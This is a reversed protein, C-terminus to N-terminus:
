LQSRILNYYAGKMDLLDQHKGCEVIIGNDVVAIVDANIVTSLRHAILIATRGQQAKDLADQVIKESETDLASTAEDLLLIKPKRILARAIAIRQKQGGSLQSGKKGCRTELREPLDMVFDYANAEKLAKEIDEDTYKEVSIKNSKLGEEPQDDLGYIINNRISTDFLVPEQQVLGVNARLWRLNIQSVEIDDVLVGGDSANYFRELLAICTSKGCGSQGVLALTKGPPVVATLGKLVLVDPRTPYAFGVSKFAVKGTITPKKGSEDEPDIIAETELLKVVRRAAIVAQGYDPAMGASQGATFAAFILAFLVRFVDSTRDLSIFGEEILFAAFTFLGAYMLFMVGLSAGYLFGYIHIKKAKGAFTTEMNTRYVEAFHLERGLGAVTRINITAETAVKSADEIAKQEKGGFNGTMIKMMLAMTIILFPLFAFTMLCLRWEYYFAIALGCGMAGLNVLTQSIKRGTAGQVKGADSALRATLAGTSNMPEDFYGMDLRLLKAFSQKRLRTTMKEGSIGFLWHTFFYGVLQSLGLVVFMCSWFVVEKKFHDLNCGENAAKTADADFTFTFTGFAERITGSLATIERNYSCSYKSYNELVSAFVIAWIPQVAGVAVAFFSGILMCQWEPANMKIIQGWSVEPLGEREAIEEDTEEEGKRKGAKALVKNDVTEEKLTLHVEEKDVEATTTEDSTGDDVWTQMNSLTKYVGDEILLLSENNGQEVVEGNKLGIILDAKKITSLRHAIVLTTRGVSAKELALQVIKESETDLASTAEDLLLIKPNRVLARAIAIRQKQGGSLTAGGEGVNTNWVNPLQNIFDYANAQKCATIIEEKTVDLRGLRINEMITGEFLIPEQSVVGVNQRFWALNLDKIDHGDILVQGGESDYFRQILQFITSKGCGSAGCLATTQSAKAIFSVGKLVPDDQRTPYTFRVNRFEVQGSINEPKSGKTSYVDIPPVRDIIEFVCYAAAQATSLYEANQGLQSLGFGGVIAGFFVILKKGIDYGDEVVLKAGYWFGLGYVCFMACFFFGIAFGALASKKIASKQAHKLPKGYRVQEERQGNFATVTRISGLVEEAIGGAAAYDDLETKSMNTTAYFFVYGAIGLVPLMAICILGLKWGYILAVIIGGIFQALSQLAVGVKEAIGDQIKKVDEFMRTNLEGTDHTDFYGINQRVISKFYCARLANVQRNSSVMLCVTQIWGALWSILGLGIFWLVNETMATGIGGSSGQNFLLKERDTMTLLTMKCIDSVIPPTVNFDAGECTQFKGASTFDNVSNGFFIIMAPQSLGVITAAFWALLIMGWDGKTAFRYLKFYAVKKVSKEKPRGCCGTEAIEVAEKSALPKEVGKGTMEVAKETESLNHPEWM